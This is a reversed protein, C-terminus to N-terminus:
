GKRKNTRGYKNNKIDKAKYLNNENNYCGCSKIRKDKLSDARIWKKNDCLKCKCYYYTRKDERKRELLEFNGITSGTLDKSSSM